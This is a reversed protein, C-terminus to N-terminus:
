LKNNRAHIHEQYILLSLLSTRLGEEVGSYTAMSSEKVNWM